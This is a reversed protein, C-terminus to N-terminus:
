EIWDTTDYSFDLDRYEEPLALRYRFNMHEPHRKEDGLIPRVSDVGDKTVANYIRYDRAQRPVPRGDTYIQRGSCLLGFEWHGYVEYCIVKRNHKELDTVDYYSSTTTM